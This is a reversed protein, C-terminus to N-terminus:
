LAAHYEKMKGASRIVARYIWRISRDVTHLITTAWINMRRQIYNGTAGVAFFTLRGASMCSTGASPSFIVYLLL